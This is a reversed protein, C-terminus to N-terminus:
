SIMQDRLTEGKILMSDATGIGDAAGKGHGAELFNWTAWTFGYDFIKNALLYFNVKNRYQKTPGDSIFHVFSIGTEHRLYELVPHM